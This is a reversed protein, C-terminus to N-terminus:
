IENGCTNTEVDCVIIWNANPSHIQALQLQTIAAAIDNCTKGYSEHDMGGEYAEFRQVSFTVTHTTVTKIKM